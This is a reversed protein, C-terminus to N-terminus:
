FHALTIEEVYRRFRVIGPDDTSLGVYRQVEHPGLLIRPSGAMVATLSSACPQTSSCRCARESHCRVIQSNASGAQRSYREAAHNTSRKRRAPKLTSDPLPPM